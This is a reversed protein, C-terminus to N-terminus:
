YTDANWHRDFKELSTRLREEASLLGSDDRWYSKEHIHRLAARIMFAYSPALLDFTDHADVVDVVMKTVTNLAADSRSSWDELSPTTSQVFNQPLSTVHTHLAFLARITIAIAECFVSGKGGGQHVLGGLFTQFTNDLAKLQSLKSDLSQIKFGNLVQDLLWAAQASRGFGGVDVSNINSVAVRHILNFDLYDIQELVAPETPLLADGDPIITVLPQEPTTVECFFIRECITIGWWTNAAEKTELQLDTDVDTNVNTVVEHFGPLQLSTRNFLHLRAAYAMRACGAISDFADDPRGCTYDYVALLLRAQILHIDPPFSGQVQALFSRTALYLSRRDFPRTNTARSSSTALCISLLLASFGASPVAGLTILSRHFRTRSCVPLYRHIGQFYRASVDDVFQGTERFLHLVQRYLNAQTIGPELVIALAALRVGPRGSDAAM